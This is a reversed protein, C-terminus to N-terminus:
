VGFPKFTEAAKWPSKVKSDVADVQNQLHSEISNVLEEGMDKKLWYVVHQEELNSDVIYNQNEKFTYYNETDAGETSVKYRVQTVRDDKSHLDLIEWKM